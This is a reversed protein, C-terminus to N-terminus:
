TLLNLAYPVAAAVAIAAIEWSFHPEPKYILGASKAFLYKGAIALAQFLIVGAILGVLAGEGGALAYSIGFAALIGAAWSAIKLLLTKKTIDKQAELIVHRRAKESVGVPYAKALVRDAYRAGRRLTEGLAEKHLREANNLRKDLFNPCMNVRGKLGAATAIFASLDGMKVTAECWPVDARFHYYLTAVEGRPPPIEDEDPGPPALVPPTDLPGAIMKPAIHGMAALQALPAKALLHSVASPMDEQTQFGFHSRWVFNLHAIDAIEGAGRCSKCHAHGTGNCPTCAMEGSGSCRLCKTRGIGNCWTCLPGEHLGNAFGTGRCQGCWEEKQGRCQPCIVRGKGQCVPCGGRGAGKCTPCMTMLAFDYSLGAVPITKDVSGFSPAGAGLLTKQLVALAQPSRTLEARARATEADLEEKSAFVHVGAPRGAEQRHKVQMDLQVSLIGDLQHRGAEEKILTIDKAAFGNGQGVRRLTALLRKALPNGSPNNPANETM